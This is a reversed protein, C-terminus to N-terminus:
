FLGLQQDQEKFEPPESWSIRGSWSVLDPNCTTCRWDFNRDNAKVVPCLAGCRECRHYPSQVNHGKM